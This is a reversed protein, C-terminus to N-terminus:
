AQEPLGKLMEDIEAVRALLRAKEETLSKRKEDTDESIIEVKWADGKYSKAADEPIGRIVFTAGDYVVTEWYRMSGGSGIKGSVLMVGAELKAGSDRGTARCIPFGQFAIGAREEHMECLATLRINATVTRGGSDGIHYANGILERVEKEVLPDFLWEGADRVWKGHLRRAGAIFDENYPASVAIEKKGNVTAVRVKITTVSM